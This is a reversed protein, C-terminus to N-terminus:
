VSWIETMVFRYTAYSFFKLPYKEPITFIAWVRLIARFHGFDLFQRKKFFFYSKFIYAIMYSSESQLKYLDYGWLWSIYSCLEMLTFVAIQDLIHGFIALVISQGEKNPTHLHDLFNSAM